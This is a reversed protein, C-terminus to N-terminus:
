HMPNGSDLRIQVANFEGVGIQVLADYAVAWFGISELVGLQCSSTVRVAIFAEDDVSHCSPFSVAESAASFEVETFDQSPVAEATGGRRPLFALAKAGPTLQEGFNL